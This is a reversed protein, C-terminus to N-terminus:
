QRAEKRPDILKLHGDFEIRYTNPYKSKRSLVWEFQGGETLAVLYGSRNKQGEEPLIIQAGTSKLDYTFTYEKKLESKKQAVDADSREIEGFRKWYDIPLPVRLNTYLRKLNNKDVTYKSPGRLFVLAGVKKNNISKPLIGIRCNKDELDFSILTQRIGKEKLQTTGTNVKGLMNIHFLEDEVNFSDTDFVIHPFVNEGYKGSIVSYCKVTTM